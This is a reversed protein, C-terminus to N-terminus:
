ELCNFACSSYIVSQTGHISEHGKVSGMFIVTKWNNYDYILLPYPNRKKDASSTKKEISCSTKNKIINWKM